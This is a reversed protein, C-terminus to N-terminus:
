EDFKDKIGVKAKACLLRGSDSTVDWKMTTVMEPFYDEVHIDYKISFEQGKKVPCTVKKCIDPEIGPYEVEVGGLDVTVKLTGSPADAPFVGSATMTAVTGKKFTCPEVDCPVVDVTKVSTTDGCNEFQIVKCSVSAVALSLLVIFLKM